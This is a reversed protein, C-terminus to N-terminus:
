KVLDCERVDEGVVVVMATDFIPRSRRNREGSGECDTTEDDILREEASRNTTPVFL